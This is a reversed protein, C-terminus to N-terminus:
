VAPADVAPVHLEWIQMGAVTTVCVVAMDPNAALDCPAFGVGVVEAKVELVAVCNGNAVSWVRATMDKSGTVVLRSSAEFAGCQVSLEHAEALLHSAENTRLNWIRPVRDSSVTLLFRCCPSPVARFVHGNHKSGIGYGNERRDDKDGLTTVPKDNSGNVDWLRVEKDVGVSVIVEGGAAVSPGETGDDEKGAPCTATFFACGLVPKPPTKKSKIRKTLEIKGKVCDQSVGEVREIGRELTWLRVATGQVAAIRLGLGWCCDLCNSSEGTIRGLLKGEPVSWFYLADSCGALMSGDNNFALSWIGAGSKM